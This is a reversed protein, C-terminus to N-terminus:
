NGRDNAEWDFEDYAGGDDYDDGAYNHKYAYPCDRQSIGYKHTLPVICTSNQHCLTHPYWCNVHSHGTKGCYMCKPCHFPPHVGVGCKACSYVDTGSTTITIHSHPQTHTTRSRHLKKANTFRLWEAVALTDEKDHLHPMELWTPPMPIVDNLIDAIPVGSSAARQSQNTPNPITATGQLYPHLHTPIRARTLQGTVSTWQSRLDYKAQALEREHLQLATHRDALHRLVHIDANAGPDALADMAVDVAQFNPNTPSLFVLDSDDVGPITPFDGPPLKAHLPEGYPIPTNGPYRDVVTTHSPCRDPRPYIEFQFKIYHPPKKTGNEQPVEFRYLQHWPNTKDYYEFGFPPPLGEGWDMRASITDDSITPTIIPSPTSPATVPPTAPPPIPLPPPSNPASMNEPTEFADEDSSSLRQELTLPAPADEIRSSLDSQTPSPPLPAILPIPSAIIPTPAPFSDPSSTTSMTITRITIHTPISPDKYNINRAALPQKRYFEAILDDAKIHTLPEWSDHAESFGKWRVLYQLQNRRRRAGLIQDVEWEPQGNILDPTPEQYKQGNTTTEKYATLLSAHFVNHIKWTPPLKLRYSVHSIAKTILFPGHRKPALKATPHTTNLHKAELWVRDGM